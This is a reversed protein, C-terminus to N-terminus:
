WNEIEGGRIKLKSCKWKVGTEVLTENEFKFTRIENLVRYSIPDSDVSRIYSYASENDSDSTKDSMEDFDSDYGITTFIGYYKHGDIAIQMDM